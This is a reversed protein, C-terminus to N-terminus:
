VPPDGGGGGQEGTEKKVRIGVRILWPSRQDPSGLRLKDGELCVDLLVDTRELGAAAGGGAASM